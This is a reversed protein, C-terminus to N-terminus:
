GEKATPCNEMVEISISMNHIDSHTCRETLKVFRNTIYNKVSIANEFARTKGNETLTYGSDLSNIFFSNKESM